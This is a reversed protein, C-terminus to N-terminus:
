EPSNKVEFGSLPVDGEIETHPIDLRAGDAVRHVSWYLYELYLTADSPWSTISEWYSEETKNTTKYEERDGVTMM